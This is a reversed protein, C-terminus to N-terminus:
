LLTVKHFHLSGNKLLVCRTLGCPPARIGNHLWTINENAGATCTLTIGKKGLIVHGSPQIELTLGAGKTRGADSVDPKSVNRGGFNGGIGKVGASRATWSNRDERLVCFLVCAVSIISCWPVSAFLLAFTM